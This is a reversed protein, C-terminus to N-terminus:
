AQTGGFTLKFLMARAPDAFSYTNMVTGGQVDAQSGLWVVSEPNLRHWSRTLRSAGGTLTLGAERLWTQVRIADGAKDDLPTTISIPTM